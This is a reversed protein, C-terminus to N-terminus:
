VLTPKSAFSELFYVWYGTNKISNQCRKVSYKLTVAKTKKRSDEEKKMCFKLLAMLDSNGFFFFFLDLLFFFFFWQSFNNFNNLNYYAFMMDKQELYWTNNVQPLFIWRRSASNIIVNCLSFLISILRFFPM